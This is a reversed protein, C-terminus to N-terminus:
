DTLQKRVNLHVYMYLKYTFLKYTIGGKKLSNTSSKKQVRTSSNRHM